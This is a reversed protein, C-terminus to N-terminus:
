LERDVLRTVEESVAQEMEMTIGCVMKHEKWDRFFFALDSKRSCCAVPFAGSKVTLGM